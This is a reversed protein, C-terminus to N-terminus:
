DSDSDSEVDNECQDLSTMLLDGINYVDKYEKIAKYFRFLRRDRKLFRKFGTIMCQEMDEYGNNILFNVLDDSHEAVIILENVDDKNLGVGIDLLKQAIKYKDCSLAGFLAERGYKDIDIDHEEIFYMAISFDDDQHVCSHDFLRGVDYVHNETAEFILRIMDVTIRETRVLGYLLGFLKEDITDEEDATEDTTMIEEIQEEILKILEDSRIKKFRFPQDIYSYINAKGM